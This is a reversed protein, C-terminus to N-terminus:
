PRTARTRPTRQGVLSVAESVQAPYTAAMLLQTLLSDPYLAVPALL